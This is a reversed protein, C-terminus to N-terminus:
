PVWQQVAKDWVVTNPYSFSNIDNVQGPADVGQRVANVHGDLYLVNAQGGTRSTGSSFVNMKSSSPHRGWGWEYWTGLTRSGNNPGYVSLIYGAKVDAAVIKESSNKAKSVIPWQGGGPLPSGTSASWQWLDDKGNPVGPTGPGGGTGDTISMFNNLAYSTKFSDPIIVNLNADPPVWPNEDAPCVHVNKSSEELGPLLKMLMLREHWYITSLNYLQGAVTFREAGSWDIWVSPPFRGKFQTGYMTLAQGIQRLNSQCKLKVSARRAGTLAPLLLGILVAIVGIVV